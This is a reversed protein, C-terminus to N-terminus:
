KRFLMWSLIGRNRAVFWYGADIAWFFTSASFIAAIRNWGLLSLMELVARGSSLVGREPSILQISHQCRVRFVSTMPPSPVDQFPIAQIRKEPDRKELWNICERCFQCEGDWLLITKHHSEKTWDLLVKEEFRDM